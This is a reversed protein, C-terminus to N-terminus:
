ARSGERGGSLRLAEEKGRVLAHLTRNVPVSLGHRRAHRVVAGSLFEIETRRGSEIDLLMSNRNRGTVLAIEMTREVMDFVHGADARAVEATELAAARLLSLLFPSRVLAGNELGTIAGLPNIAANVALKKWIERGIKEAARTPFGGATFVRAVEEIEGDTEGEGAPLLPRGILTNGRGYWLVRGPGSLSVGNYVLGRVIKEPPFHAGLIEENGIGNQLCLIWRSSVGAASLAACAEHLDYAKVAIAVLDRPGSPLRDTAEPRVHVTETESVIRLGNERVARAHSPRGVLTVEHARSLLGGFLSGIAGAGLVLVRM